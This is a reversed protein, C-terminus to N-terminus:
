HRHEWLPLRRDDVKVIEEHKLDFTFTGEEPRLKDHRIVARKGDERMTKMLPILGRQKQRVRDSADARFYVSSGKLERARSVVLDRDKIHSFGSSSREGSRHAGEIPINKTIMMKKRIIDLVKYECDEWTENASPPIYIGGARTKWRM